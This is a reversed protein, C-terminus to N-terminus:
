LSFEYLAPSGDPNTFIRDPKIVSANPQDYATIVLNKGGPKIKTWDRSGPYLIYFNGFKYGEVGPSVQGSPLPFSSQFLAPNYRTTFLYAMLFSEKHGDLIIRDYSNGSNIVSAVAPLYGSNFSFSSTVRYTNFFYFYTLIVSILYTGLYLTRFYKHNLIQNLGLSIIFVVPPLLPLLRPAHTGGDRTLSAAVPSLILWSVLLFRRSRDPQDPRILLSIGIMFPIFELLYFQGTNPLNLNHRLQPDGSFFLFQGSLSRSYNSLFQEFIYTFKNIILRELLGPQMGIQRKTGGGLASELRRYNVESSIVPDTTISLESFRRNVNKFLSESIVPATIIMFVLVPVFITRIFFLQRIRRYYAIALIILFVPLFLKATPYTWLGLAFFAASLSLSKGTSLFKQFLAFGLLLFLPFTMSEAAIRGQVLTWPAFGWVAVAVWAINPPLRLFKRSLWYIVPLTLLSILVAPLRVSFPNLGFLRVSPVTLYMYLSSRFDAFSQLHAPFLNGYYDRATHLLSYSQYGTDLEDWYLGDPTSTLQFFRLFAVLLLIPVFFKM